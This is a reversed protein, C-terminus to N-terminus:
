PAIKGFEKLIIKEIVKTYEVLRGTDTKTRNKNKYVYFNRITKELGFKIFINLM